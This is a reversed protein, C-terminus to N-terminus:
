RRTIKSDLTALIPRHDSGIMQLYEVYSVPFLDHWGETALARDLRCRVIKGRRRGRWSLTNGRSPFDVLGCDSIMLNFSLFSSAQHLPGGQKEENETIENFDCILFWPETRTTRIRTIREWVLDRLKVVPDGYVFSMFIVQGEHRAEIDIIRKNSSIITVDYINNYFLALGGSAGRPEVMHVGLGSLELETSENYCVKEKRGHDTGKDTGTGWIRMRKTKYGRWGIVNDSLIRIDRVRFVLVGCDIFICKAKDRLRIGHNGDGHIDLYFAFWSPLFVIYTKNLFLWLDGSTGDSRDDIDGRKHGFRSLANNLSLCCQYLVVNAPHQGFMVHGMALFWRRVEFWYIAEIRYEFGWQKDLICEEVVDVQFAPRIDLSHTTVHLWFMVMTKNGLFLSDGCTGCPNEMSVKNYSLRFLLFKLSFCCQSFMVSFVLQLRPNRRGEGSWRISFRNCLGMWVRQLGMLQGFWGRGRVWGVPGYEASETKEEWIRVVGIQDLNFGGIHGLDELFLGSFGMEFVSRHYGWIGLVSRFDGQYKGAEELHSRTVYIGHSLSIQHSRREGFRVIRRLVTSEGPDRRFIM